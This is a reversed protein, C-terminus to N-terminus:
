QCRGRTKNEMKCAGSQCDKDKSCMRGKASGKATTKAPAAEERQEERTSRNEEIQQAKLQVEEATRCIGEDCTTGARCKAAKGCWGCVGKTCLGSGCDQWRTCQEGNGGTKLIDKRVAPAGPKGALGAMVAVTAAEDIDQLAPAMLVTLVGNAFTVNRRTWVDLNEDQKRPQHGTFQCRVGKIERAVVPQWAAKNQNFRCLKHIQDIARTCAQAVSAMRVGLKGGSWPTLDVAAINTTVNLQLKCDQAVADISEKLEATFESSKEFDAADDARSTTAISLLVGAALSLGVARAISRNRQFPVSTTMARSPPLRPRADRFVKM